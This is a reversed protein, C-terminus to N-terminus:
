AASAVSAARRIAIFQLEAFVAVALAQAAVFAIGLANPAVVGSLLLGFSGIVWVVNIAIIDIMMLKSVSPRRAIVVLMAVFPVLALGAWFLLEAPLELLPSLLPAGLMMLIGAAGSILADANLVNRVFPTVAISM